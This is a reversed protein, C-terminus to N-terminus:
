ILRFTYLKKLNYSGSIEESKGFTLNELTDAKNRKLTIKFTNIDTQTLECLIKRNDESSKCSCSMRIKRLRELKVVCNKEM